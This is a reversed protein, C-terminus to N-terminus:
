IPNVPSKVTLPPVPPLPPSPPPRYDPSENGTGTDKEPIDFTFRSPEDKTEGKIKLAILIATTEIESVNGDMILNFIYSSEKTTLDLNNFLKKKINNIKM